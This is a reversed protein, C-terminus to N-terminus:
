PMAPLVAAGSAAAAGAAAGAALCGSIRKSPSSVGSSSTLQSGSLRIDTYGCRRRCTRRRNQTKGFNKGASPANSAEPPSKKACRRCMKHRRKGKKPWFRLPNHGPFGCDSQCFQRFKCSFPPFKEKCNGQGAEIILIARPSFHNLFSRYGMFTAHFHLIEAFPPHLM